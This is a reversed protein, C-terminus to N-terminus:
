EVRLTGHPDVQWDPRASTWRAGGGTYAIVYRGPPVNPLRVRYRAPPPNQLSISGSGLPKAQALHPPPGWAFGYSNYSPWWKPALRLPLLTFTVLVSRHTSWPSQTTAPMAGSSISITDGPHATTRDFAGAPQPGDPKSTHSNGSGGGRSGFAAFGIAIAGGAVVTAYVALRRRRRRRAEEILADPAAGNPESPNSDAHVVRERGQTVSVIFSLYMAGHHPALNQTVFWAIDMRQDGCFNPPREGGTFGTRSLSEWRCSIESRNEPDVPIGDQTRKARQPVFPQQLKTATSTDGDGPCRLARSHNLLRVFENLECACM